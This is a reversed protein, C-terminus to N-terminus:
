KSSEMYVTVDSDGKKCGESCVKNCHIIDYIFSGWGYYPLIKLGTKGLFKLFKGGYEVSMEFASEAMHEKVFSVGYEKLMCNGMCKLYNIQEQIEEETPPPEYMWPYRRKLENNIRKDADEGWKDLWKVIKNWDEGWPDVNMVPNNNVFRYLNLGGSIGIPDETIFRGRQPDYYRHYYYYLGSESDYYKSQFTIM